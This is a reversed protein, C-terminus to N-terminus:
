KNYYFSSTHIGYIIFARLALALVSRSFSPPVFTAGVGRMSSSAGNEFMYVIM